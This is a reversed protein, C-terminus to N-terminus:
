LCGGLRMSFVRTRTVILHDILTLELAEAIEALRHTASIDEVSPRCRGSPHNHALLVGAAGLAMAREILPRARAEIRTSTGVTVPEDALYGRAADAFIAHLREQGAGGIRARLYRHVAPDSGDVPAGVLEEGLAAEVLRRAGHIADVATRYGGAAARLQPLPADLVRQLSGFRAILREALPGADKGAFPAFLEAV